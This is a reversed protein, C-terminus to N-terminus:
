YIKREKNMEGCYNTHMIQKIRVPDQTRKLAWMLKTAVSEISMDYAQIAGLDLAKKGADYLHMLTAGERCQSNVVVPINLENAKQIVELYPYGINGSGYGRLVLGRIDSNLLCLLLSVPTGPILPIIAIRPEFGKQITLPKEHRHKRQDSFRIDISIEGLLDWNITEFADLKSESVKTARSGLIISEGFVIMVGAIDMTAVRVANTLNRRADTEIKSGPIQAGTLIVPKGIDHLVYSLASSTYAMTDTGHTIVFGDYAEYHEYIVDAMQDWHHPDINSSDINDIYAVTLDAVQSLKPEINLLNEIAKEKTPTQLSGEENEEM